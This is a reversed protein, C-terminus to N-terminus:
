FAVKLYCIFFLNAIFEYPLFNRVDPGFKGFILWQKVLSAMQADTSAFNVIRSLTTRTHTCYILQLNYPAPKDLPLHPAFSGSM